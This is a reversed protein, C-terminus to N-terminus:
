EEKDVQDRSVYIKGGSSTRWSIDYVSFLPNGAKDRRYQTVYAFRFGRVSLEEDSVSRANHTGICDSLIRHNAKLIAHVARIDTPDSRYRRNHFNCRCNDSCFKKDIRGKVTNGCDLCFRDNRM